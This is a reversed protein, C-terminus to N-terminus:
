ANLAIVEYDAASLITTVPHHGIFYHNVTALDQATPQATGIEMGQYCQRSDASLIVTNFHKALQMAIASKGSCTPGVIFIATPLTAGM